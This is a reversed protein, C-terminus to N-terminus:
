KNLAKEVINEVDATAAKMVEEILGGFVASMKGSNIRSVYTKGNSREYVSIRCPMMASVIREDDKELIRSSHKPHCIEFVRVPLVDKGFNKMTQQLDHVAPTKWGKEEIANTIKEITDKFDYPSLSEFLMEEANM